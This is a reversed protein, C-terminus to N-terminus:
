GIKRRKNNNRATERSHCSKCLGQLNSEDCALSPAEKLDVIHHVETATTLRGHLMCIACLPNGRLYQRRLAKWTASNYFEKTDHNVM